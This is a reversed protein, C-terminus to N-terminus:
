AVSSVVTKKRGGTEAEQWKSVGGGRGGDGELFSYNDAMTNFKSIM